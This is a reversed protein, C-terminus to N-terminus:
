MISDAATIIDATSIMSDATKIEETTHDTSDAEIVSGMMLDQDVEPGERDAMVESDAQVQDADIKIWEPADGSTM